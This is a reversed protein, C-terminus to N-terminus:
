GTDRHPPAAIAFLAAASPAAPPPPPAPRAHLDPLGEAARTANIALLFATTLTYLRRYSHKGREPPNLITHITLPLSPVHTGLGDALAARSAAYLPCDLLLHEVTEPTRATACPPHPCTGDTPHPDAASPHLHRHAATYARALLLRARGAIDAPRAHAAHRASLFRLPPAHSSDEAAPCCDRIPATTHRDYNAAAPQQPQQADPADAPGPPAQRGAPEGARGARRRKRGRGGREQRPREDWKQRVYGDPAHWESWELRAAHARIHRLKTRAERALAAATRPAAHQADPASHLQRLTARSAEVAAIHQATATHRGKGHQARRRADQRRDSTPSALAGAPADAAPHTYPLVLALLRVPLPITYDAQLIRAHENVFSGTSMYDYLQVTPHPGAADDPLQQLRSVRMAHLLQKHQVHTAIAPVGCGFLTSHQHATRPLSLARRLPEAMAAQFRRARDDGIASGWVEIAYDFSPVVCSRVLERVVAPQVPRAHAAASRVRSAARHAAAIKREAHKGWRLNSAVTLGLYDYHDAVAVTYGCLAVDDFHTHDAAGGCNFVVVQTKEQGFHMRSALCWEHLLQVARKLHQSYELEFAPRRCRLEALRDRCHRLSPGIVGDDAYFTPAVLRCGDDRAIALVLENIFVLFLLPSLVCGQPVGHAPVDHWHSEHRHDVCRMRRDALFARIWRWARGAVGHRQLRALLIAHDVRDFAKQIDLFLAACRLKIHQDKQEDQGAAAPVVGERSCIYQLPTVLQLIADTTARGARFGFQSPALTGAVRQALRDHILHEFTRAIGSTVSIPRYSLPESRQGKGKYLAAVNAERWALPVAAHRWSYNYVAALAAWLTHGGYPLFAPLVADPGAATKRTRRKTQEGVQEATFTWHDSGDAADDAGGDGEYRDEGRHVQQAPPASARIFAACLNDLSQAHSAPMGGHQDKVGTLPSSASKVYCRLAAYRLGSDPDMVRTALRERAHQQAEQVTQKWHRRAARAEREAREVEASDRSRQTKHLRQMAHNRRRRAEEVPATWWPEPRGTASGGGVKAGVTDALAALIAAELQGYVDELREHPPLPREPASRAAAHEPQDHAHALADLQPQLPAIHRTMARHLNAQWWVENRDSDWQWRPRSSPPPPPADARALALEVTFPVHDNNFLRALHRQTVDRVLPRPSSLVLDIVTWSAPEAGAARKARHTKMGPPNHIHLETDRIWDALATDGGNGNARHDGWDAHRANFDGVLLWPLDDCQQRAAAITDCMAAMGDATCATLPHVYAVVLLFPERGHPAVVASAVASSRTNVGTPAVVPQVAFDRVPCTEHTIITVGGSPQGQKAKPGPCHHRFWGRPVAPEDHGTEVLAYVLPAGPSAPDTSCQLGRLLASLGGRFGNINHYLVTLPM